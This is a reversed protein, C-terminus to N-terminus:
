VRERCSARGIKIYGAGKMTLDVVGTIYSRQSSYKFKGRSIEVLTGLDRLEYLVATILGKTSDDSINFKKAIQKYNFLKSPEDKYLGVIKNTLIKKNLKYNNKKGTKKGKKKFYKIM